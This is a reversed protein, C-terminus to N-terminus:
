DIEEYDIYEGIDKQKDKSKYHSKQSNFNINQRTEFQADHMQNVM